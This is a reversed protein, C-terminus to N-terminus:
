ILNESGQDFPGYYFLNPKFSLNKLDDPLEEDSQSVPLNAITPFQNLVDQGSLGTAIGIYISDQYPFITWRHAFRQHEPVKDQEELIEQLTIWKLFDRLNEIMSTGLLTPEKAVAETRKM